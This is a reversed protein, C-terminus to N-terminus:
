PLLNMLGEGARVVLPYTLQPFLGLVLCFGLGTLLFIREPWSIKEEIATRSRLMNNMWRLGGMTIAVTGILISGAVIGSVPAVISMLAWRGPFGATLPLGGVAFLGVMTASTAYPFRWLSGELKELTDEGERQKLIAIGLAWVALSIARVGSHGIALEYGAPQGTGVAIVIVGFDALLAYAMMKSFQRQAIAMAGGFVVMAAGVWRTGEFLNENQRLWPYQNLFFLLFFLGASQLIVAVFMLGYPKAEEGATPLWIHFPPIGLLIAFGLALYITAQMAEQTAGSTIGGTEMMWGAWLLVIMGLTYLILLRLAGRRAQFRGEVLILVAGMAALEIFLAAFLFPRIMLSAAVVYVMVLGVSPLYRSREAMWTGGIMFAGILYLFGVATRNGGDLTLARGLIMWTGDVRVGTSGMSLAEEIPMLLAFAGLLAAGLVAIAVVVERRLRLFPIIAALLISGVTLILPASV